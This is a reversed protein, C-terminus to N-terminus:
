KGQADALAFPLVPGSGAARLAAAVVTLTWRSDVTDDVLLVRGEPLEGVVEFAGWVNRLQQASNFAAKQPQNESVKRVADLFPLVGLADALRRAFSPVLDVYRHSPVCTVWAVSPQWKERILRASAAVLEDSFWPDEAGRDAAVLSGLEGDGYGSLARGEEAQLEAPIRGKPEELGAPWQRRPEIALIQGRLHERAAEALSADPAVDWTFGTCNACRGCPAADPDDLSRRLFEMLCGTAVAYEDMARQEDRREQTVRRVREEDYSWPESTRVWRGGQRSVAGEVELVKLMTTLRSRKVNVAAEVAAISAPGEVEVVGVIAEAQERPPFATAIFFDQIDRDERGRMLVAPAHELARGARGVQQYYAIPSGPSQYHIVFGLDPKDFGMGLASTAVLVKLENALLAEELPPREEAATDGSYAEAQVGRSRLFGAVRHTDAITLAYVIGSGPLTPIVAALWAMRDAASPLDVVSLALSERDLPGRLTLLDAGLQEAIDAIVRDNATATTCLVPVGDPLLDIVRVLQRYDPRFDHGWDSICHAEDIVLLGSGKTLLPLVDRRFDENAFREPSVLLLDVNGAELEEQIREWEEPNSSNITEARIGIRAAMLIQNRMLALLPSVLLTPGAGQDRLVRTAIFYVASKGWGTRQVVLARRRDAAITRIAELQGPRFTAGAGLMRELVQQEPPPSTSV